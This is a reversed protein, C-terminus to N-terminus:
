HVHATTTKIVLNWTGSFPSLHQAGHALSRPNLSKRSSQREWKSNLAAGCGTSVTGQACPHVGEKVLRVLDELVLHLLSRESRRYLLPHGQPWESEPVGRGLAPVPNVGEVSNKAATHLHRTPPKRPSSM